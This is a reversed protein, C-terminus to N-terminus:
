CWRTDVRACCLITWCTQLVIMPHLHSCRRHDDQPGGVFGSTDGLRRYGGHYAGAADRQYSQAQLWAELSRTVSCVCVSRGRMLARPCLPGLVMMDHSLLWTARTATFAAFARQQPSPKGFSAAAGGWGGLFVACSIRRAWCARIQQNTFGVPHGVARGIAGCRGRRCSYCFSLYFSLPSPFSAPRMDTFVRHERREPSFWVALAVDTRFIRWRAMKRAGTGRFHAQPPLASCFPNPAFRFSSNRHLSCV